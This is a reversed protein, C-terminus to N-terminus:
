SVADYTLEDPWRLAPLYPQPTGVSMAPLLSHYKQLLAGLTTIAEDLEAFTVTVSKKPGDHAVNEDAWRSVAKATQELLEIDDAGM